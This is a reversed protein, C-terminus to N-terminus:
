LADLVYFRTSSNLVVRAEAATGSAEVENAPTAREESASVSSYVALRSADGIM